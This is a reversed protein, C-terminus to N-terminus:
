PLPHERMLYDLWAGQDYGYDRGTIFKLSQRAQWAVSFDRELLVRILGQAVDNRRFNRLADASAIRVDRNEDAAALRRMLTPVASEDPINALAKASELRVLEARDGLGAIFIPMASRERSRNLARIAAARVTWDAQSTALQKYRETYPERRGWPQNVLYFIGERRQDPSTADEMKRAARAPTDGTMWNWVRKPAEVLSASDKTEGALRKENDRQSQRWDRESFTHPTDVEGLFSACGGSFLALLIVAWLSRM